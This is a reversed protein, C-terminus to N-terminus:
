IGGDFLVSQGTMYDSDRSALFSVFGAVDEPTEIRGLAILKLFDKKTEGPAKGTYRGLTEDITTWMDTDVVGPCYANVTIGHQAFERAAAQTLARVAFKTAAYVSGMPFAEHGAVSAANIIKGGGGQAIMQAAASQVCYFAGFVNVQFILDLDTPALELIPKIQVLGANCVMVGLPGLADVADKVLKRCAAQNTVDAVVAIAKVHTPDIERAVAKASVGDVDNVAVRFGDSALRLAIARGIGRGAGTVIATKASAVM